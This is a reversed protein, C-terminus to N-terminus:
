RDYCAERDFPEAQFRGRYKKLTELAKQQKATLKTKEIQNVSDRPSQGMDLLIMKVRHGLFPSFDPWKQATADDVVTEIEIAHQM